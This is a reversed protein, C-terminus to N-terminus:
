TPPPISTDSEPMHFFEVYVTQKDTQPVTVQTNLMLQNSIMFSTKVGISIATQMRKFFSAGYQVNICPTNGYLKVEDVELSTRPYLTRCSLTESGHVIEFEDPRIRLTVTFSGLEISKMVDRLTRTQVVAKAIIDTVPFNFDLNTEAVFTQIQTTVEFNLDRMVLELKSGPGQIRMTVYAGSTGILNLSEMFELLPVNLALVGDVRLDFESFLTSKLYANAQVTNGTVIFRMGSEYITMTVCKKKEKVYICRLLNHLDRASQHVAFFSDDTRALSADYFSM